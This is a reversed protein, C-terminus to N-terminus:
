RPTQRLRRALADLTAHANIQQSDNEISGYSWWNYLDKLYTSAPIWQTPVAALFLGCVLVALGYLPTPLKTKSANGLTYVGPRKSPPTVFSLHSAANVQIVSGKRGAFNRLGFANQKRKPGDPILPIISPRTKFIHSM